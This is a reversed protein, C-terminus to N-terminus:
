NPKQNGMLDWLGLDRLVSMTPEHQEKLKLVKGRFANEFDASTGPLTAVTGYVHAWMRWLSEQLVLLLHLFAYVHSQHDAADDFYQIRLTVDSGQARIMGMHRRYYTPNAHMFDDNIRSLVSQLDPSRDLSGSRLKKGTFTDRYAGPEESRRKWVEFTSPDDLWKGIM